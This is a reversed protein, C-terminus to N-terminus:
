TIRACCSYSTSRQLMDEGSLCGTEGLIKSMQVQIELKLELKSQRHKRWNDQFILTYKGVDSTNALLPEYLRQHCAVPYHLTTSLLCAHSASRPKQEKEAM